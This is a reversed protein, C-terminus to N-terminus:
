LGKQAYHILYNVLMAVPRGTAGKNAGSNYAVGAIDLHAWPTNEPVFRSLFCAATISGAKGDGINALDAFNSQLTEGYEDWMPFRWLRDYTREGAALLQEALKEDNSFLGAGQSGMTMVMAGTLTALDIMLAPKFRGAYTMTDCLVLRGEADTNLIEVTLGAMSKVIDGPKTAQHGPMNEACALLGVVNIPLQLQSIAHMTGLVSAAGCMDFKMEDMSAPPKLSTGGTDFTIGKGILVVPKSKAKNNGRYHIAVLRAPEKSGQSVSLFTNMGLKALQKEDLVEVKIKRHSKELQKATKAIYSPTCINGPLNALDKCAKIGEGIAMSQMIALKTAKLNKESIWLNVTQLTRKSSNKDKHNQLPNVFQYDLDYFLRVAHLIQQGLSINKVPQMCLGFIIQKAAMSKLASAVSSLIKRYQRLDYNQHEGLNVVLIRRFHAHKNQIIPIVAGPQEGLLETISLANLAPIAKLMQQNHQSAPGSKKDSFMGVILCDATTAPTLQNMLQFHM